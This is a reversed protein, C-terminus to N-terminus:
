LDELCIKHLVSTFTSFFHMKYMFIDVEDSFPPWYLGCFNVFPWSSNISVNYMNQSAWFNVDHLTKNWQVNHGGNSSWRAELSVRLYYVKKLDEHCIKHLVFTFTSFFIYKTCSFMLRKQFHLGNSAVLTWLHGHHISLYMTCTRLPESIYM